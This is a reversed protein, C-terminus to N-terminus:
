KEKILIRLWIRNQTDILKLPTGFNNFDQSAQEIDDDFENKDVEDDDPSSRRL